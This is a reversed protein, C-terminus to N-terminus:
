PAHREHVHGTRNVLFSGEICPAHRECVCGTRNVLFLGEIYGFVAVTEEPPSQVLCVVPKHCIISMSCIVVYVVHAYFIMGVAGHLGHRFSPM